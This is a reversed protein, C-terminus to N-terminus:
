LGGAVINRFAEDIGSQGAILDKLGFGETRRGRAIHAAIAVLDSPQVVIKAGHPIPDDEGVIAVGADEFRKIFREMAADHAANPERLDALTRRPPLQHVTAVM